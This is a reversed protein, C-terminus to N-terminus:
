EGLVSVSDVHVSKAAEDTTVKLAVHKGYAAKVAEPNDLDSSCM